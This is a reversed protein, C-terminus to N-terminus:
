ENIAVKPAMMIVTAPFANEGSLVVRTEPGWGNPLTFTYDGSFPKPAEDMAMDVDRNHAEFPAELQGAWAYSLGLTQYVRVMVELIRAKKGQMTGRQSLGEICLPSLEWDVGLGVLVRSAADELTIAGQRVTRVPHAAGDALVVVEQGELHDLGNVTNVPAASELQLGCDVYWCGAENTDAGRWPEKMREICVGNEREVALWTETFGGAPICAVSLVRGQTEHRHWGIVEQEKLLTCGALTGDKLVAWVISMPNQCYAVEKIGRWTIHEGFLSLETSVYSNEAFNYALDRLKRRDESIHLCSAGAMIPTISATGYNSNLEAGIQKNTIAGTAGNNNIVWEGGLTGAILVSKVPYIWFISNVVLANLSIVMAKDEDTGTTFDEFSGTTSAWIKNPQKDTGAFWLRQQHFSVGRPWNDAIWDAPKATFTVPAISFTDAGTRMLKQPAVGRCAFYMVDASQCYNLEAIDTYATWPTAIASNELEGGLRFFQMRGPTLALVYAQEANFVFPILRVSATDVQGCFETGMRRTAAGHPYLMMNKLTHCAQGYRAVEVRGYLLPSWEGATFNTIPPTGISM